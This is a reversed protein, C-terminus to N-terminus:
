EDLFSLKEELEAKKQLYRKLYEGHETLCEVLIDFIKSIDNVDRIEMDGMMLIGKEYKISTYIDDYYTIKNVKGLNDYLKGYHGEEGIYYAYFDIKGKFIDQAIKKYDYEYNQMIELIKEDYDGLVYKEDNEVEYVANEFM